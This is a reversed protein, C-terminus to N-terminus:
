GAWPTAPADPNGPARKYIWISLIYIVAIVIIAAILLIIGTEVM